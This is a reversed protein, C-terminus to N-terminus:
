TADIDLEDLSSASIIRDLRPNLEDDSKMEQVRAVVSEPLNEFKLRLQRLIVDQKGKIIGREEYITLLQKIEPLQERGL